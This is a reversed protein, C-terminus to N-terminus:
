KRYQNQGGYIREMIKPDDGVAFSRHYHSDDDFSSSYSHSQSYYPQKVIELTTRAENGKILKKLGLIASLALAIKGVILATGAMAAVAKYSFAMFMFKIALAYMLPMMYRKRRRRDGRRGIITNENTEEESLKLQLKHNDLFNDVKEWILNNIGENSLVELEKYNLIQKGERNHNAIKIFEVGDVLVVNKLKSLRDLIKLGQIKFCKYIETSQGCDELIKVLVKLGNVKPKDSYVVPWILVILILYSTNM